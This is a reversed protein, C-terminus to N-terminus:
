HLYLAFLGAFSVDELKGYTEFAKEALRYGEVHQEDAPLVKLKDLFIDAQREAEKKIVEETVEANQFFLKLDNL